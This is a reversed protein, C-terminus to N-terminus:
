NLPIDEKVLTRFVYLVAAQLISSPANFNDAVQPSTGHFDITARRADSDVGIRVHIEAGSDMKQVFHGAKLHDIVRRVREAANSRVHGMYAEVMELGFQEVMGALERVGKENAAIQAHIDGVNQSVNRAPYRANTLLELFADERFRGDKVLLFDTTLGGDAHHGRTAVWFRPQKQKGFVPTVVTIDPLHTGGAFPDNLAYVDGPRIRVARLAAAVAMPMSGLHVPMHDGQAIVRGDSDFVACSYDRREKINPSFATRRLAIGMEEAVSTYLARYIELTTPDFIKM